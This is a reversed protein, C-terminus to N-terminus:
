QHEEDERPSRRDPPSLERYAAVEAMFRRRWTADTEGPWRDVIVKIERGEHFWISTLEDSRAVFPWIALLLGSVLALPALAGVLGRWFPRLPAAGIAEVASADVQDRFAPLIGYVARRAAKPSLGLSDVVVSEAGEPSGQSLSHVVLAITRPSEQRGEFFTGIRWSFQRGCGRCRYRPKSRAQGGKGIRAADKSGCGDRPCTVGDPWRIRELLGVSREDSESAELLAPASGLLRKPYLSSEIPQAM